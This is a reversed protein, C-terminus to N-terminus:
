LARIGVGVFAAGGLTAPRFAPEEQGVIAFTRDLLPAIALIGVEITLPDYVAVRLRPGFGAALWPQDGPDVPAVEHVVAHVMGLQLEGCLGLEWRGLPDLVGCAGAAATALGFAFRSDDAFTEPLVLLSVTGRLSRTGAEAALAFGPASGPILGRALTARVSVAVQPRVAPSPLRPCERHACECRPCAVPAPCALEPCTPPEPPASLAASREPSSSPAPAAPADPDITLALALTTAEELPGCDPGIADISRRGLEIGDVDRLIIEARWATERRSLVTELARQAPEGFPIRGLRAVVGRQLTARDPCSGTGERRVVSLEFTTPPAAQAPFTCLMAVVALLVCCRLLRRYPSGEGM